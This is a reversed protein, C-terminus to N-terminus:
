CLYFYTFVVIYAYKFVVFVLLFSLVICLLIVFVKALGLMFFIYLEFYSRLSYYYIYLTFLIQFVLILVSIYNSELSCLLQHNFVDTSSHNLCKLLECILRCSFASTFEVNMYM